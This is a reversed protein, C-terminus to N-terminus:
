SVLRGKSYWNLCSVITQSILTNPSAPYDDIAARNRTKFVSLKQIMALLPIEIAAPQVLNEGASQDNWDAMPVGIIGGTWIENGVQCMAEHGQLESTVVSMEEEIDGSKWSGIAFGKSRVM